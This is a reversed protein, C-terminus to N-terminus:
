PPKRVFKWTPKCHSWWGAIQLTNYAACYIFFLCLVITCFGQSGWLAWSYVCMYVYVHWSSLLQFIIHLAPRYWYKKLRYITDHKKAINSFIGINYHIIVITYNNIEKVTPQIDHRIKFFHVFLRTQYIFFVFLCFISWLDLKYNWTLLTLLIIM